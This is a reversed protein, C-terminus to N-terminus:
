GRIEYYLKGGFQERWETSRLGSLRSPEGRVLECKQVLCVNIQRGQKFSLYIAGTLDPFRDM